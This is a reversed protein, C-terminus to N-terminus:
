RVQRLRGERSKILADVLQDICELCDPDLSALYHLKDGLTATKLVPLAALTAAIPFCQDSM